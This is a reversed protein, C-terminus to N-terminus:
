SICIQFGKVLNQNCKPYLCFIDQPQDPGSLMELKKKTVVVENRWVIILKKFTEHEKGNQAKTKATGEQKSYEKKGEQKSRALM